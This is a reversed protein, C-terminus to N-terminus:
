KKTELATLRKEQLQLKNQLLEILQQQRGTQIQMEAKAAEVQKQLLEIIKQQEQVAKVLPVVFEAYKIKYLDWKNKPTDYGSFDYNAAKAAQEVEQALFGTYKIKESDYKGAYEVSDKIGTIATLAKSSIHYTVPRLKLIFDLGKVDEQVDTKIRADSVIGWNVKGGIFVTNFNGIIAQNSAGQLFTPANGISITNFLNGFGSAVGSGSGIAINNNGTTNFYLAQYGAATNDFGTTNLALTQMGNTSNARGITNYFLSEVGNATNYFGTTNNPLALNGNVTNRIGTTNSYLAQYGTATNEAGTTNYYLAQSGNATNRTGTTNYYLAVSGNATNYDGTTNYYLAQYGNATNLSGSTNSFLSSYGVAANGFGTKNLRLSNGGIATNFTGGVNNLLAKYGFATNFQLPIFVASDLARYGFATNQSTSDLIGANMNKIRFLLPNDDVTGIFQNAPNNLTNGSLNWSNSGDPIETWVTGNYFWFTKTDTDYIKLGEAPTVIALKQVTTLRPILLGKTTSKIDLMASTDATSGDTNVSLSQAFGIVPLLTVISLSCVIYLAITKMIFIKYLKM